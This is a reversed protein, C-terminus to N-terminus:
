YEDPHYYPHFFATVQVGFLNGALYLRAISIPMEGTELGEVEDIHMQLCDAVEQHSFGAKKRIHRFMLGVVQNITRLDGPCQPGGAMATLGTM